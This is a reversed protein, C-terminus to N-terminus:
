FSKKLTSGVRTNLIHKGCNVQTVHSLYIFWMVGLAKCLSALNVDKAPAAFIITLKGTYEEMSM